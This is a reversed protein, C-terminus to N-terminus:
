ENKFKKVIYKKCHINTPINRGASTCGLDKVYGRYHIAIINFRPKQNFYYFDKILVYLLAFASENGEEIDEIKMQKLNFFIHGARDALDKVFLISM